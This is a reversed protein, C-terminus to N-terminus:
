EHVYQLVMGLHRGLAAVEEADRDEWSLLCGQFRPIIFCDSFARPDEFLDTFDAVALADEISEM